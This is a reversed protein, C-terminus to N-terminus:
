KKQLMKKINNNKALDAPTQDRKNTASKKAGSQLLFEVMKKQGKYAARHLPTNGKKDTGNVRVGKEILFAAVEVAGQSAAKFLPTEGKKNTCSIFAGKKILYEVIDKCGKGAAVHLPTDGNADPKKIDAKKSILYKVLDLNNAYVANYLPTRKFKDQRNLLKPFSYLIVKLRKKNKTNIAREMEDFAEDESLMKIEAIMKVYEPPITKSSTKESIVPKKASTKEDDASFAPFIIGTSLIMIILIKYIM